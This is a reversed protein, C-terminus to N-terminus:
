QRSCEFAPDWSDLLGLDGHRAAGGEGHHGHDHHRGRGAQDRQGAAAPGAQGGLGAGPLDLLDGRGDGHHWLALALGQGGEGAPGEVVLLDVQGAQAAPGQHQVEPRGPAPRSSALSARAPRSTRM